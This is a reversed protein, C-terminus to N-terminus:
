AYSPTFECTDIAPLQSAKLSPISISTVCTFSTVCIFSNNCVCSNTVDCLYMRQAYVHLLWTVGMCLDHWVHWLAPSRSVIHIYIYVYIYVYVYIYTYICIYVYTHLFICINIYIYICICIDINIYMYNSMDRTKVHARLGETEIPHRMCRLRVDYVIMYCFFDRARGWDRLSHFSLDLACQRLRKTLVGDHKKLLVSGRTQQCTQMLVILLVYLCHGLMYHVPCLSTVCICPYWDYVCVYFVSVGAFFFCLACCGKCQRWLFSRVQETV